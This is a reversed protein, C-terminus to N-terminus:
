RTKETSKKTSSSRLQMGAVPTAIRTTVVHEGDSLGTRVLVADPTGWVVEVDRVELKRQDNMIHVRNGEQVAARPVEIVDDLAPADIEVHVFTNLLLPARPGDAQKEKTTEPAPAKRGLPDDIEVVVRAMSGVTDLDPLLRVVRGQREVRRSGIKHWIRAASGSHEDSRTSGVEISQLAEVPISVQVWYRDTGVLTALTTQPTVLQGREASESVVMANFPATLTTRGLNLSAQKLASQAAKLQVEATRLQPERLALSRGQAPDSTESGFAEWERKAVVQRGRELELELEARQVEARSSELALEFDRPDVRALRQGKKFEGGPVLEKSLWVVRGSVEPQVVVQEAPVVTGQARVAVAHRQKRVTLTDVLVGRSKVETRQAEPRTTVLAVTVAAGLVVAFLPLVVKLIMARRISPHTSTQHPGSSGDTISSQDSVSTQEFPPPNSSRSAHTM